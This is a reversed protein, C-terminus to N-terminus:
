REEGLEDTMDVHHNGHVTVSSATEEGRHQEATAVTAQGGVHGWEQPTGEGRVVDLIIEGSNWALQASQVRVIRDIRHTAATNL